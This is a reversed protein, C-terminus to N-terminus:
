DGRREGNRFQAGDGRGQTPADGWRGTAGDGRRGAAGERPRGTGGDSPSPPAAQGAAEALKRGRYTTYNGPYVRPTGGDIEVIRTTVRDLLYRDHSAVVVVGDFAALADELVEKSGVDLHNTPEDLLLVNAPQFLLKALAVRSREGGSLDRTRKFVDDQTFLFRGLLTRVAEITTGNPVVSYVEDLISRDGDLAAAQDQAFFARQTNPGVILSGATPRERGALLRLLTSKGAGNPGVLGIRDGREVILTAGAFVPRDGYAKAVDRLRFVERGSPPCPPFRFAITKTERPIDVPEIRALQKERSKAQASRRASARFREVFARQQELYEQQRRAAALLAERRKAKERTYWEYPGPYATLRGHELELTRVTVRNLFYRDHSVVIAAGRHERLYEELWEMAAVDLHNTPEDLLMLDPRALLIRALAIRMRWGGSFHETPREYDARTFGLGDLVRGIQVEVTHGDLRDFESQLRAHEDILAHLRPDDAAVQHMEREIDRQREENDRVAAFVELMEGHLTRGSQVDAEQPLYAVTKGPTRSVAGGDAALEGLVIRLLTSKGAGNPGVLAVREGTAAGFSADEFLTQDGFAKKLQTVQLM